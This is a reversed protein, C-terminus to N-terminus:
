RHTSVAANTSIAVAIANVAIVALNALLIDVFAQLVLLALIAAVIRWAAEVAGARGTRHQTNVAFRTQIERFGQRLRMEHVSSWSHLPTNSKGGSHRRVLRSPDLQSSKLAQHQSPPTLSAGHQDSKTGVQM